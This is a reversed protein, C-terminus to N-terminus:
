NPATTTSPAAGEDGSSPMGREVFLKMADAVPIKVIGKAPDVLELNRMRKDEEIRLDRIDTRTTVNSQLLPYPDKPKLQREAMLAGQEPKQRAKPVLYIWVGYSIIVCVTLFVNFWFISQWITKTNIDRTEYGMEPRTEANIKDNDVEHM